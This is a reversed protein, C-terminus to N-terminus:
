IKGIAVREELEALFLESPRKSEKIRNNKADEDSILNASSEPMALTKTDNKQVVKYCGWDIKRVDFDDTTLGPNQAVFRRIARKGSDRTAYAKGVINTHAKFGPGKKAKATKVSRAAAGRLVKTQNGYHFGGRKEVLGRREEWARFKKNWEEFFGSPLDPGSVDCRNYNNRYASKFQIDSM